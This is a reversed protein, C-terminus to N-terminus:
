PTAPLLRVDDLEFAFAGPPGGSGVFIMTVDYPEAVLTRLDIRQRAFEPGVEVQTMAPMMGGQESFVLVALTHSGASARAQLELVPTALLNAPAQPQAGPMLAVGSWAIAGAALTGHVSLVQGRGRKRKVVALEVTSSGGAMADTSGVWGAGISSRPTGDDFDSVLGGAPLAPPAAARLTAEREREAAVRERLATRDFARGQKYIARLSRMATIDRRPDGEVLLLDARLGPAIRGRDDLGLAAAPKSTAAALAETPTLGAQVLLSLEGILSVGHATGPNPADTSALVPVGGRHLAGVVEFIPACPPRGIPPVLSARLQQIAARPLLPALRPDDTLARGHSDDCMATMVPLTDTVFLGRRKAEALFEPTPPRDFFSHAIGDAGVALADAADAFTGIHVIAELKRAHAAEVLAALTARDITKFHLGLEAGDDYVIKLLQSGEAVRAAVFADAQEPATITPIPAGYETGHGGPATALIGASIVDARGRNPKRLAKAVEPATFLDIETTVGFALAQQPDAPTQVHVHADILGPVLAAGRGEVRQAGAPVAVSAADGVAVIREGDVLVTADDIWREGDFVDVGVFALTADPAPATVTPAATTSPSRHCGMGAIAVTLGANCLLARLSVLDPM